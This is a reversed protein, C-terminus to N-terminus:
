IGAGARKVIVDAFENPNPVIRAGKESATVSVLKTKGPDEVYSYYQKGGPMDLGLVSMWTDARLENPDVIAGKADHVRSEPDWIDYTYEALRTSSPPTYDVVLKPRTAATGHDSTRHNHGRNMGGMIRWFRWGNNNDFLIQAEALNFTRILWGVGWANVGAWLDVNSVDVGRTHGPAGGAWANVGDYANWTAGLETWPDIGLQRAMNTNPMDFADGNDWYYHFVMQTITSGAPIPAMDFKILPEGEVGVTSTRLFWHIHTGYNTGPASQYLYTDLGAAAGPQTTYTPDIVWDKFDGEPLEFFIEDGKIQWRLEIQEQYNEFDEWGPLYNMVPHPLMGTPLLIDGGETLNAAVNMNLKFRFIQPHGSKLYLDVPIRHGANKMKIDVGQLASKYVIWEEDDILEIKAKSKNAGLLSMNLNTKNSRVKYLIGGDELEDPFGGTIYEDFGHALNSFINQQSHIKFTIDRWVGRSVYAIPRLHFEAHYEPVKKREERTGKREVYRRELTYHKSHKM